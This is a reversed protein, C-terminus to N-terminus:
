DDDGAVARLVADKEPLTPFICRVGRRECVQAWELLSAVSDHRALSELTIRTPFHLQIEGDDAAGLADAATVWRCAHVERGCPTAETQDHAATVFFRTSYRKPLTEPTIWYSVYHLRDLELSTGHPRLCDGWSLSGALLGERLDARSDIPPRTLLVGTEEFLERLAAGYYALGGADLGLLRNARASELNGFESAILEDDADLVGGPFVFAGGFSARPDRKVMLYEPEAAAERALILTSSPRAVASTTM